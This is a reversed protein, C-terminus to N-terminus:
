QKDAHGNALTGLDTTQKQLVAPDIQKAIAASYKPDRSASLLQASAQFAQNFDGNRKATLVRRQLAIAYKQREAEEGGAIIQQIGARDTESRAASLYASKVSEPIVLVESREMANYYRDYRAKEARLPWKDCSNQGSRGILENLTFAARISAIETLTPKELAKLFVNACSKPRDVAVTVDVRELGPHLRLRLPYSQDEFNVDLDDFRVGAPPAAVSGKFSDPSKDFPPGSAENVMSPANGGQWRVVVDVSGRAPATSGTQARLGATAELLLLAVLGCSATLARNTM